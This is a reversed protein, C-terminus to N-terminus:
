ALLAALQIAQAHLGGLVRVGQFENQLRPALHIWPNPRALSAGFAASRKPLSM